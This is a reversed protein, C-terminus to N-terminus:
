FSGSRWENRTESVALKLGLEAFARQVQPFEKRLIGALVLQGGPLLRNAIRRKEAILLDSLLNACVLDYRRAPRIPLKAVDAHSIRMAHPVGNARANARAVRVAERDFDFAHVPMYGLKAAAIALIGSGTGMDLFSRGARNKGHRVLARLCFATTPHRGTGFSLGPDLVVLAQNKRPPKKSWSPRILLTRGIDIPPFHRKWSEAWDEHHMRTITIKGSGTNLGCQKARALGERVKRRVMEQSRRRGAPLARKQRRSAPAGQTVALNFREPLYATVESVGTEPNFWTSVLQHLTTSLLEAVADEAEPTTAVSVRWLSPRKM